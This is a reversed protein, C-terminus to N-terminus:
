DEEELIEKYRKELEKKIDTEVQIGTAATKKETKRMRCTNNGTLLAIREVFKCKRKNM